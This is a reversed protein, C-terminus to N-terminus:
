GGAQIGLITGFRLLNVYVWKKLKDLERHIVDWGETVDAAGSLKTDDALM